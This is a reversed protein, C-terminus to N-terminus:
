LMWAEALSCTVNEKGSLYLFRKDLIRIYAVSYMVTKRGSLYLFRKDLIRIDALSYM